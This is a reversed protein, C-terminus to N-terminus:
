HNGDIITALRIETWESWSKKEIVNTYINKLASYLNIYWSNRKWVKAPGLNRAAKEVSKWCTQESNKMDIIPAFNGM